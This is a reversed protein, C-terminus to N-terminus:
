KGNRSRVLEARHKEQLERIKLKYEFAVSEALDRAQSCRCAHIVNLKGLAISACREPNENIETGLFRVIYRDDSILDITRKNDSVIQEKTSHFEFGDCEVIMCTTIEGVIINERDITILDNRTLLFDVRYNSNYFNFKYQPEVLVSGNKVSSTQSLAIAFLQEIPSECDKIAGVIDDDVKDHMRKVMKQVNEPLPSVSEKNGM